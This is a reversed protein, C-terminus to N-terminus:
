DILNFFREFRLRKFISPQDYSLYIQSALIPNVQRQRKLESKPDLGNQNCYNIFNQTVSAFEGNSAMQDKLSKQVSIFVLAAKGVIHTEPVFGWYRSDASNHRNDGMMFYYNYKFTYSEIKEGNLHIEDMNTGIIKYADNPRDYNVITNGYLIVNEPTLEIKLGESPILFPGLNDRNWNAYKGPHNPFLQGGGSESPDKDLLIVANIKHGQSKKLSNLSEESATFVMSTDNSYHLEEVNIGAKYFQRPSIYSKTNIQYYDQSLTFRDIKEGNAYVENERVEFNDGPIGICRKIYNTRLDIPNELEGPYNFVVVDNREVESIGPFRFYPLQLGEIYSKVGPVGNVEDATFWLYKHTLPVQAPTIPSRSGYNLKSVFLFDGVLLEGEMSPTPITYLEFTSWRIITAALVAFLIADSWERYFPKKIKPMNAGEGIYKDDTKFGIYPFYAFPFLLAMAQPMFDEKGFSKALELSATVFVFVNSVPLFSLIAWYGPKGIVRMLEKMGVYPILAKTSDIGAKRLCGFTILQFSYSLFFFLLILAIM